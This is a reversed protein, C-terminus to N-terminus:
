NQKRKLIMAGFGMSVLLLTSPEPVAIPPPLTTATNTVAFVADMYLSPPLLSVPFSTAAFYVVVTPIPIPHGLLHLPDTTDDLAAHPEMDDFVGFIPDFIEHPTTGSFFVSGGFHRTLSFELETGAAFTGLSVHDVLPSAIGTDFLPPPLRVWLALTM